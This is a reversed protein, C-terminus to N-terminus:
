LKNDLFFYVGLFEKRLVLIGCARKSIGHICVMAFIIIFRNGNHSAWVSGLLLNEHNSTIFAMGPLSSAPHGTFIGNSNVPVTGFNSFKFNRM